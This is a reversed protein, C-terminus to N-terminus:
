EKPNNLIGPISLDLGEAVAASAARDLDDALDSIWQHDAAFLTRIHDAVSMLDQIEGDSWPEPTLHQTM